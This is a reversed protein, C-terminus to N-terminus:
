DLLSFWSNENRTLIAQLRQTLVYTTRDNFRQEKGAVTKDQRRDGNRNVLLGGMEHRAGQVRSMMALFGTLSRGILMDPYSRCVSERGGAM